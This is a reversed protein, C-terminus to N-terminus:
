AHAAAPGGSVAFAKWLQIALRVLLAELLAIAVNALVTTLIHPM